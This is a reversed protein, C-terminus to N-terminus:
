KDYARIIGEAVERRSFRTDMAQKEIYYHAEKETINLNEILLWKARNVTRIDAMKEQLTRNKSEFRKLKNGVAALMRISSYLGQKTSPKGLTLVGAPEAKYCVEDFLENKVLLLVGMASDEYGLALEIGFDDSLPTNIIMIDPLSSVLMRKAEGASEAKMIPSFEERPLLESVQAAIKDNSSVVLVSHIPKRTPM